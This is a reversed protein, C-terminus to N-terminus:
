FGAMEAFTTDMDACIANYTEKQVALKDAFITTSVYYIFIEEFNILSLEFKTKIQKSFTECVFSLNQPNQVTKPIKFAGVGELIWTQSEFCRLDNAISIKIL